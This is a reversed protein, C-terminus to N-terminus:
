LERKTVDRGLRRIRREGLLLEGVNITAVMGPQYKDTSLRWTEIYSHGKARSTTSAIVILLNM